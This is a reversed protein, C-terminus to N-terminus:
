ASASPAYSRGVHQQRWNIYGYVAFLVYFIFLAGTLYMEKAFYLYCAFSNIVIWYLWNELVKHAVMMTTYVSFVTIFADLYLYQSDLWMSAFVTLGFAICTLLVLRVLHKQISWSQIPIEENERQKWQQWGYVAMLLYYANLLTHFLLSVEWFLWTYIGTSVLACPWCWINERAALWVYAVALIVATAELWFQTELWPLAVFQQAINNFLEILGHM